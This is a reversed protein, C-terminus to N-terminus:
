RGKKIEERNKEFDKGSPFTEVGEFLNDWDEQTAKRIKGKFRKGQNIKVAYESYKVHDYYFDETIVDQDKVDENFRRDEEEMEKSRAYFLYEVFTQVQDQVDKLFMLDSVHLTIRKDDQNVQLFSLSRDIPASQAFELNRSYIKGGTKENVEPDDLNIPSFIPFLKDFDVFQSLGKVFDLILGQEEAFGSNDRGVETITRESLRYQDDHSTPSYVDPSVGLVDCIKDIYKYPVGRSGNLVGSLYAPDMGVSKAFAYHTGSKRRAKQEECWAKLQDPFLEPFLAYDRKKVM